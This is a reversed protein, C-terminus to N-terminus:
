KGQFVPQRKELFAQRAEKHDQSTICIPQFGAATELATALDVQQAQRLLTKGLRLVLPSQRAIERALAYTEKELEEEAVVRNLLGTALAEQADMIKASFLMEAARPYGLVQVMFWAGAMGPILGIQTFSRFRTRPTGLRIDCAMAFDMGGGAAVGNVMAITPKEMDHLMRPIAQARRLARRIAEASTEELVRERTAGRGVDAGVCFDPGAGTLVVVRAGDDQSVQHLAAVLEEMMEENIGNRRQPRNLTITAITDEQKVLITQYDV